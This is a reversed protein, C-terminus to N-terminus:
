PVGGRPLESMEEIVAEALGPATHPDAVRAVTVGLREVERATTSGICVLRHRSLAQVGVAGALARAASGSMFTVVGPPSGVLLERAAAEDEVGEIVRYAVVRRPRGGAREVAAVLGDDALDGLLLLV